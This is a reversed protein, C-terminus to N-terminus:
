KPAYKKILFLVLFCFLGYGLWLLVFKSDAFGPYWNKLAEWDSGADPINQWLRMLPLSLILASLTIKVHYQSLAILIYTMIFPFGLYVIRTMDGGAFIGFFLYALSFLLLLEHITKDDNVTTIKNASLFIFAGFAMFIATLWRIIKFPDYLTERMHYLITIVSGRGEELPPFYYNALYKTIISIIFATIIWKLDFPRDKKLVIQYISYLLVILILVTFSEKQLTGLVSILIILLYKREMIFLFLLAQFFYLPVDVTIPDHQNLRIIGVWHFLLWFFGIAVLTKSIKLKRWLLYISLVSLITFIFNVAQFNAIIKNGTFLSALYPVFIRSHFPFSVQQHNAGKKFFYYIKSYQNGDALPVKEYSVIPQIHQFIFFTLVTLAVLLFIHILITKLQM